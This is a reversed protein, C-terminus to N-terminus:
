RNLEIIKRSYGRFDNLEKRIKVEWRKQAEKKVSHVTEKDYLKQYALYEKYNARYLLSFENRDKFFKSKDYQRIKKRLKRAFLEGILFHLQEHELVKNDYIGTRSISKDFYAYVEIKIKRTNSVIPNLKIAVASYALKSGKKENFDKWTLKVTPRWKIINQQSYGIMSFFLLLILLNKAIKNTM